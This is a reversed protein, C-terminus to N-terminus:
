CIGGGGGRVGDMWGDECKRTCKRQGDRKAKERARHDITRSMASASQTQFVFMGRDGMM